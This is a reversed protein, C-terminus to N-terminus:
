TANNRPRSIFWEEVVGYFLSIHTISQRSYDVPPMFWKAVRLELVRIQNIATSIMFLTAISLTQKVPSMYDWM